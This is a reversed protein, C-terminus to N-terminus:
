IEELRYPEWVQEVLGFDVSATSSYYPHLEDYPVACVTNGYIANIDWKKGNVDLFPGLGKPGRGKHFRITGKIESPKSYSLRFM